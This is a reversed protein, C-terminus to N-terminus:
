RRWAPVRAAWCTACRGTEMSWAAALGICATRQKLWRAGRDRSREAVSVPRKESQSFSLCQACSSCHDGTRNPGPDRSVTRGTPSYDGEHCFCESGRHPNRLEFARQEVAVDLFTERQEVLSKFVRGFEVHLCGGRNGEQEADRLPGVEAVAIGGEELIHGFSARLDVPAAQLDHIEEAQLQDIGVARERGLMEVAADVQEIDHQAGGRRDQRIVENEEGVEPFAARMAPAAVVFLGVDVDETRLLDRAVHLRRSEDGNRLDM